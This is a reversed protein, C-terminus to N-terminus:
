KVMVKETKYIDGIRAKVIYMQPGEVQVRFQEAPTNDGYVLAGTANYIQL